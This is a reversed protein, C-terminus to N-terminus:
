TELFDFAPRQNEVTGANGATCRVNPGLIGM